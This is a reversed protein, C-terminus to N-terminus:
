AGRGKGGCVCVCVCVCVSSDFNMWREGCFVALTAVVSKIAFLLTNLCIRIVLNEGESRDAVTAVAM